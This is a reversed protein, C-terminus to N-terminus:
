IKPIDAKSVRRTEREDKSHDPTRTFSPPTNTSCIGRKDKITNKKLAGLVRKRDMEMLDEAREVERSEDKQSRIEWSFIDCPNTKCPNTKRLRKRSSTQQSEDQREGKEVKM